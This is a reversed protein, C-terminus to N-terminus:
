RAPRTATFRSDKAATAPFRTIRANKFIGVYFHAAEEAQGDFWLCPAIKATLNM